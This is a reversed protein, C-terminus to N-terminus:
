KTEGEHYEYLIMQERNRPYPVRSGANELNAMLSPACVDAVRNAFFVLLARKNAVGLEARRGATKVSRM